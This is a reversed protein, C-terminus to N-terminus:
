LCLSKFLFRIRAISHIKLYLAQLQEPMRISRIIVINWRSWRRHTVEQTNVRGPRKLTTCEMDMMIRCVIQPTFWLQHHQYPVQLSTIGWNVV